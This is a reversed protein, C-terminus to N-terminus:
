VKSSVAHFLQRADSMSNKVNLWSGGDVVLTHGTVFSAADSVLYLAAQAIDLRTGLRQLPVSTELRRGM